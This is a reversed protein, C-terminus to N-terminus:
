EGWGVRAPLWSVMAVIEISAAALAATADGV